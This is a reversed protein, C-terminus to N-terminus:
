TSPKVNDDIVLLFNLWPKRVRIETNQNDVRSKQLGIRSTKYNCPHNYNNGKHYNWCDLSQLPKLLCVDLYGRLPSSIM